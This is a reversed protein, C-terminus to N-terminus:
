QEPMGALRLGQKFRDFTAAFAANGGPNHRWQALTRSRARPLAFYRQLVEQAEATRGTLALMSALPALISPSDPSAVAARRVWQLAEEDQDLAFYALGKFLLFAGLQPDRPSLRMGMELSALAQRPEGLFLHLTALMRYARAHSPNLERCREAALLADPVRHEDGLVIANACHAAYDDPALALARDVWQRARQVDAQPDPSQVREVREGHYIALRVLARVNDPDIALAQECLPYSTAGSEGQQVAAAAECRLALDEARAAASGSTPGAHAGARVLQADLVNALRVVTEDISRALASRPIDVEDSWLTRASRTDVLRTRLRVQEDHPLWSGQLAYRVQLEEGLRRLDPQPERIRLASSSAIVVAGRLRSLAATLEDTYVDALHTQRGAPDLDIFPLVVLSLPARPDQGPRLGIAVALGAGIVALALLATVARHRGARPPAPPDATDGAAPVATLAPEGDTAGDGPALPADFLYGRRPVTKIIRQEADDLAARVESVCRTLSDDTVVLGPWVEAMLQDKAVLRGAHRLLCHLLDFSKPRLPVAHGDRLLSARALDVMFPGFRYCVLSM